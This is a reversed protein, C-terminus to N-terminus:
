HEMTASSCEPSVRPRPVFLHAASPRPSAAARRQARRARRARRADRSRQARAASVRMDRVHEAALAKVMAPHM